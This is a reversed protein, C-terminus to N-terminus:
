MLLLPRLHMVPYALQKKPKMHHPIKAPDLSLSEMDQVVSTLRMEFHHRQAVMRLQDLRDNQRAIYTELQNLYTYIRLSISMEPFLLPAQQVERSVPMAACVSALAWHLANDLKQPTSAFVVVPFDEPYSEGSKFVRAM